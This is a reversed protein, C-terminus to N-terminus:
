GGLVDRAWGGSKVLGVILLLSIALLKVPMIFMDAVTGVGGVAISVSGSVIGSIILPFSVLLFIMIVGALCVAVFNKCFNVGFQRTEEFGMLAFPIPSFATYVYIQIARAYAVFLSIVWAIFGVLFMILTLIIVVIMTGPAVGTTDGLTVATSIGGNQGILMKALVNVEGYVAKCLEASNNILWSFIVFFVALFVIEKVAPLTSTADIKQSIKVVQVLMVLALISHALPVVGIQHIEMALSYVTRAGGANSGLLDTFSGTLITDASIGQMFGMFGTLLGNAVDTLLDTLWQDINLFDGLISAHAQVPFLFAIGALAVFCILIKPLHRKITQTKSKGPKELKNEM